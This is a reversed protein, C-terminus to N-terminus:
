LITEIGTWDEPIDMVLAKKTREIFLGAPTDGPNKSLVAQFFPLAESFQRNYFHQTGKNFDELTQKKFNFSDLTDGDFCEYITVPKQKGKVKIKGLFRLHFADPMEVKGLFTESLLIAAGFHKTLTEIRSAINVTDSITAADLRKDDGIIGMILDGQHLGIGMRIEKKGTQKRETNYCLLEKQMAIAGRLTQDANEPFLAMIGDGLYQNIFGNHQQIIPGMRQNFSAVFRFTDKPSMSESLSTYDRIDSFLVTVQKEAFEGLEAELINKKGLFQLFTQPVFKNSAINIRTLQEMNEKETKLKEQMANERQQNLLIFRYALALALTVVFGFSVLLRLVKQLERGVTYVEIFRLFLISCTILIGFSYFRAFRDKTFLFYIFVSLTCLLGFGTLVKRISDFWDANFGSDRFYIGAVTLIWFLAILWGILLHIKPFSVKTRIYVRGFQLLLTFVLTSLFTIIYIFLRPQESFLLIFVENPFTLSIRYLCLSSLLFIFWLYITERSWLYMMITIFLLAFIIGLLLMGFGLVIDFVRPQEALEQTEIDLKVKLNCGNPMSLKVWVQKTFGPNLNLHVMSNILGSYDREDLKYATGSYGISQITDNTIKYAEVNLFTTEFPLCDGLFRPALGFEESSALNKINLLFWYNKHSRCFFTPQQSLDLWKADKANQNILDDISLASDGEELIWQLEPLSQTEKKDQISYTVAPQQWDMQAALVTINLIGCLILIYKFCYKLTFNM